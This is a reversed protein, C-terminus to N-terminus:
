GNPLVELCGPLHSAALLERVRVTKGVVILAPPQIGEAACREAIDQLSGTVIVQESTTAAQIVAIPTEPTRGLEVLRTATEALRATGMYFVLTDAATALREWAPASGDEGPTAHCGTVFAVNSALGRHTLPIGTAAAAGLASTVGPVVEFPIGARVLEEAEEAGRGFLYPDGGKLRCVRYGETAKRVLLANIQEQPLIHHGTEKGVYILEADPRTERLLEESILRDYVVVEAQRLCELGRVTILKPDGPGAGVLSVSGVGPRKTAGSTSPKRRRIVRLRTQPNASIM